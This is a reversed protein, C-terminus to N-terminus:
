TQEEYIVYNSRYPQFYRMLIGVGGPMGKGNSLTENTEFEDKDM